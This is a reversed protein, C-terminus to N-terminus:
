KELIGNCMKHTRRGLFDAIRVILKGFLLDFFTYFLFLTGFVIVTNPIIFLASAALGFKGVSFDILLSRFCKMYEFGCSQAIYVTFVSPYITDVIKSMFSSVKIELLRYFIFISFVIVLINNYSFLKWTIKADCLVVVALFQSLLILM